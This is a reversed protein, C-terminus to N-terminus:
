QVALAIMVCWMEAGVKQTSDSGGCSGATGTGAAEFAGEGGARKNQVTKIISHIRTRRVQILAM